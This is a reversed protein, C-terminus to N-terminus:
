SATAEIERFRWPFKQRYERDARDVATELEDRSAEEIESLLEEIRDAAIAIDDGAVTLAGVFVALEQATPHKEPREMNSLIEALESLLRPIDDIAISRFSRRFRGQLRATPLSDPMTQYHKIVRSNM